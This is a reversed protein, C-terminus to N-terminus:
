LETPFGCMLCKRAMSDAEEDVLVTSHHKQKSGYPMEFGTEFVFPVIDLEWWLRAPLYPSMEITKKTLGAGLFKYLHEQQYERIKEIM